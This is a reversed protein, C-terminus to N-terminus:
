RKLLKGVQGDSKRVINIGQRMTLLSQGDVSYVAQASLPMAAVRTVSTSQQDIKYFVTEDGDEMVLYVKNNLKIIGGEGWHISGTGSITQLVTGDESVVKFGTSQQEHCVQRSDIEGDGDRDYEDQIREISEYIPVVYEFKEDTNFLTQSLYFGQDPHTNNDYDEFYLHQMGSWKNTYVNVTEWEGTFTRMYSVGFLSITGDEVNWQYYLTPYKKGFTEYEWYFEESTPWFQYNDKEEVSEKNPIDSVAWEKAQNWTGTWEQGTEWVLIHGNDYTAEVRGEAKREQQEYTSSYEELDLEFSRVLELDDNYVSVDEDDTVSVIYANNGYTFLKPVVFTEDGTISKRNTQATAAVSMAM